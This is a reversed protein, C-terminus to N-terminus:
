LPYFQLCKNLYKSIIEDIDKYDNGNMQYKFESSDTIEKVELHQFIGEEVKWTITFYGSGKSSSPRIVYAGRYMPKLYNEGEKSNLNKFNKHNILKNSNMRQEELAKKKILMEREYDIARNVDFYAVYDKYNAVEDFLYQPQNNKPKSPQDGWGNSGPDQHKFNDNHDDGAWNQDNGSAGRM